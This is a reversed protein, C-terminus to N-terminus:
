FILELHAITTTSGDPNKYELRGSDHFGMRVYFNIAAEMWGGTYLKIGDFKNRKAHSVCAQVLKAGYGNRRRSSHVSMRRLECLNPAEGSRKDNDTHKSTSNSGTGTTSSIDQLGVMGRVKKETGQSANSGSDSAPSEAEDGDDEVLMLFTGRGSLYTKRMTGTDNLDSKLSGQIYHDPANNIKMGDIFLNRIQALQHEADGGGGDSDHDFPIINASSSTSGSRNIKPTSM